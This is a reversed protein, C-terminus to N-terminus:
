GDARVARRQELYGVGALRCLAFRRAVPSLFLQSELAHLQGSALLRVVLALKPRLLQKLDGGANAVLTCGHLFGMVNDQALAAFALKELTAREWGPAAPQGVKAENKM